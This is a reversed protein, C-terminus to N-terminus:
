SGVLSVLSSWLHGFFCREGFRTRCRPKAYIATDSSRLDPRSNSRSVTQVSDSLYQPVLYTRLANYSMTQVLYCTLDVWLLFLGSYKHRVQQIYRRREM